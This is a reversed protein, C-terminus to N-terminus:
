QVISKIWDIYSATATFQSDTWNGDKSVRGGSMVGVLIWNGHPSKLM